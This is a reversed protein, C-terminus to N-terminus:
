WFLTTPVSANNPAITPYPSLGAAGNALPRKVPMIPLPEIHARTPPSQMEGANAVRSSLGHKLILMGGAGLLGLKLLDRRGSVGAAILEQRNRWSNRALNSWRYKLLHM